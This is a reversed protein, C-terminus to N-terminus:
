ALAAPTVSPAGSLMESPLVDAGTNRLLIARAGMAAAGTASPSSVNDTVTFTDQAMLCSCYYADHGPRPATDKVGRRLAPVWRKRGLHVGTRCRVVMARRLRAYVRKHHQAAGPARALPV